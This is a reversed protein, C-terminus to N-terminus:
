GNIIKILAIVNKVDSKNPNIIEMTGGSSGCCLHKEQNGFMIIKNRPCDHAM